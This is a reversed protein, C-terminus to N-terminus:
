LRKNNWHKEADEFINDVTLGKFIEREKDLYNEHNIDGSYRIFRIFGSYGLEKILAKSGKEMIERDTYKVKENSLM